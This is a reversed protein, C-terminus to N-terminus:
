SLYTIELLSLLLSLYQVFCMSRKRPLFAWLTRPGNEWIWGLVTPIPLFKEEEIRGVRISNRPKKDSKIPRNTLLVKKKWDKTIFDDFKKSGKREMGRWLSQLAILFQQIYGLTKLLFQRDIHELDFKARWANKATTYGEDYTLRGENWITRKDRLHRSNRSLVCVFLSLSCLSLTYASVFFLSLIM